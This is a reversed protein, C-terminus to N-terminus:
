KWPRFIASSNTMMEMFCFGWQAAVCVCLNGSPVSRPSWRGGRPVTCFHSVRPRGPVIWGCFRSGQSINPLKSSEHTTSSSSTRTSADARPWAPEAGFDARWDRKGTPTKYISCVSSSHLSCPLRQLIVFGLLGRITPRVGQGGTPGAVERRDGLRTTRCRSTASTSRFSRHCKRPDITARTRWRIRPVFHRAFHALAHVFTSSSERPDCNRITITNNPNQQSPETIQNGPSKQSKPSYSFIREQLNKM